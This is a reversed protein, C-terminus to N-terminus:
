CKGGCCCGGGPADFPSVPGAGELWAAIEEKSPMRGSSVIRGDIEVAPTSMVGAMMIEKLDTVKQVTVGCGKAAVAEKILAETQECRECGPGYVKIVM